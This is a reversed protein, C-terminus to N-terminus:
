KRFQSAGTRHRAIFKEYCANCYKKYNSINCVGNEFRIWKWVKSDPTIQAVGHFESGCENCKIKLLEEM